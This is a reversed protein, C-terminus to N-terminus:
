SWSSTSSPSPASCTSCARRRYISQRRALTLGIARIYGPFMAAIAVLTCGLIALATVDRRYRAVAAVLSLGLLVFWFYGLSSVHPGFLRFAMNVYDSMGRDDAVWYYPRDGREATKQIADQILQDLPAAGQFPVAVAFYGAYDHKRGQYIQSIAVPIAHMRTRNSPDSDILGLSKAWWLSGLFMVIM